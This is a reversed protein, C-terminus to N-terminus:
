RLRAPAAPPRAAVRAPGCSSATGSSPCRISRSRTGGTLGPYPGRLPDTAV